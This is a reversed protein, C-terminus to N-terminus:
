QRDERQKEWRDWQGQSWRIVHGSHMLPRPIQRDLILKRVTNRHVSLMSCVDTVRLMKRANGNPITVTSTKM